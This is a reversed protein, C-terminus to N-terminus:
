RELGNIYGPVRPNKSLDIAWINRYWLVSWHDQLSIRIPFSSRGKELNEPGRKLPFQYHICKGNHYVTVEGNKTRKGEANYKPSHYIIDYTQWLYPALSMNVKPPSIGYLAGCENWNGQLGYSDLVQIEFMNDFDIGSNVRDQGKRDPMLPLKFELHLFVDTFEQRTFLSTKPVTHPLTPVVEMEDENVIKWKVPLDADGIWKDFNAGNFLVIAERTPKEGLTPSLKEVKKLEFQVWNGKYLLKGKLNNDSIEAQVLSDSIIVKQGSLFGTTNAYHEARVYLQPLFQIMYKNMEPYVQAVCEPHSKLYGPRDIFVGEYDGLFLNSSSQAFSHDMFPFIGLIALVIKITISKM